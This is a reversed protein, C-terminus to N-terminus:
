RRSVLVIAGLALGGIVIVATLAYRALALAAKAVDHQNPPRNSRGPDPLAM